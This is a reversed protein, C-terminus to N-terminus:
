PRRRLLDQDRTRRADDVAQRREFGLREVQGSRDADAWFGDPEDAAVLQGDRGLRHGDLDRDRRHDRSPFELAQRDLDSVDIAGKLEARRTDIQGHAARLADDLAQVELLPRDVHVAGAVLRPLVHDLGLHRERGPYLQDLAIWGTM